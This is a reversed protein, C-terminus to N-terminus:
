FYDHIDLEIIPFVNVFAFYLLMLLAFIGAIVLWEVWTPLYSGIEFPLNPHVLTPVVIRVRKVWLGPTM